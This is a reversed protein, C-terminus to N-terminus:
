AMLHDWLAAVMELVLGPWQAEWLPMDVVVAIPQKLELHIGVEKSPCIMCRKEWCTKLHIVSYLQLLFSLMSITYLTSLVKDLLIFFLLLIGKRECTPTDPDFIGINSTGNGACVVRSTGSILGFGAM